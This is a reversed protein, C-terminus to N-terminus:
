CKSFIKFSENIDKSNLVSLVIDFALFSRNSHLLYSKVLVLAM